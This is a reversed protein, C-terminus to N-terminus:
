KDGFSLRRRSPDNPSVTMRCGSFQSIVLLWCIFIYRLKSVPKDWKLVEGGRHMEKGFVDLWFDCIVFDLGSIDGNMQM